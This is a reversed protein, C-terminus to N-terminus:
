ALHTLSPMDPFYGTILHQAVCVQLIGFMNRFRNRCAVFVQSIVAIVVPLVHGSCLVQRSHEKNDIHLNLLL